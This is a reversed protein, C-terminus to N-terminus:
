EPGTGTEDHSEQVLPAIGRLIRKYGKSLTSRTWKETVLENNNRYTLFYNDQDIWETQVVHGRESIRNDSIYKFTGCVGEFSYDIGESSFQVSRFMFYTDDGYVKYIGPPSQNNQPTNENTEQVLQWTGQLPHSKTEQKIASELIRRIGSPINKERTWVETTTYLGPRINNATLVLEDPTRLKYKFQIENEAVTSDTLLEYLRGSANFHVNMGAYENSYIILTLTVGNGYFKYSDVETPYIKTCATDRATGKLHWAGTLANKEYTGDGDEDFLERDMSSRVAEASCGLILFTTAMFILSTLWTIIRSQKLNISDNMFLIRKKLPHYNYGSKIWIWERNEVAMRVLNLQYETPVIGKTMVDGDAEMEQLIKNEALLLWVFPNYWNFAAIALLVCLKYFHRHRIHSEEHLLVYERNDASQNYPLFIYKGYSFPLNYYTSYLDIGNMKGDPHAHNRISELRHIQLLLYLLVAVIGAYYVYRIGPALFFSYIRAQIVKWSDSKDSSLDMYYNDYTMRDPRFHNLRTIGSQDITVTAGVYEDPAQEISVPYESEREPYHAPSIFSVVTVTCLGMLIFNQSLRPHCKMGITLRFIIWLCGAIALATVPFFGAIPEIDTLLSNM